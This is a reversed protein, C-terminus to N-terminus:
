LFVKIIQTHRHGLAHSWGVRGQAEEDLVVVRLGPALRFGSRSDRAGLPFHCPWRQSPAAVCAGDHCSVTFVGHVDLHCEPLRAESCNQSCLGLCIFVPIVPSPSHPLDFTRCEQVSRRQSIPDVSGGQSVSVTQSQTAWHFISEQCFHVPKWAWAKLRAPEM